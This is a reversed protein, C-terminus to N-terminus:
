TVPFSNTTTFHQNSTIESTPFYSNSSKLTLHGSQSKIFIEGNDGIV